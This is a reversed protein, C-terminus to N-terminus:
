CIILVDPKTQMRPGKKAPQLGFIQDPNLPPKDYHQHKEWKNPLFVKIGRYKIFPYVKADTIRNYKTVKIPQKGFGDVNIVLEVNEFTKLQKKDEIMFPVGDHVNADGFQHVILIKKKLLKQDRAYDDLMKQVENIQSAKITGIPRGPTEKGPYVSFEPDLAVIVNEYKLYGKDLMRKVQQAPASKGIQTDLVVMWGRKAAPEIYTNVLDKTRGELYMLCDDNPKCPIAMAYILHLAPIVDKKDHRKRIERIWPQIDREMDEFGSYAGLRGLIPAVNFARGYVTFLTNESLVSVPKGPYPQSNIRFACGFVAALCGATCVRRLFSKRLMKEILNSPRAAARGLM